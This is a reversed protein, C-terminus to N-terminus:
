RRRSLDQLPGGAAHSQTRDGRRVEKVDESWGEEAHAGQGRGDGKLDGKESM